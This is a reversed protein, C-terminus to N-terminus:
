FSDRRRYLLLFSSKLTISKLHPFETAISSMLHFIVIMLDELEISIVIEDAKQTRKAEVVGGLLLFKVLMIHRVPFVMLDNLVTHFAIVAEDNVCISPTNRVSQLSLFLNEITVLCWSESRDIAIFVQYDGPIVQSFDQSMCAWRLFQQDEKGIM